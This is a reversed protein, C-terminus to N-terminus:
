AQKHKRYEVTAGKIDANGAVTEKFLKPGITIDKKLLTYPGHERASELYVTYTGQAVPAGKNDKGDWLLSYKGPNRTASSVTLILDPGGAKYVAEGGRYWRRLDPIWRGGKRSNEVWLCLTRVSKADKDEVWVAVYPRRARFDDTAALEIEVALEMSADWKAAKAAAQQANARAGFLATAMAAMRGIASRRSIYSANEKLEM